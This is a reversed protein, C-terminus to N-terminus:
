PKYISSISDMTVFQVLTMMTSGISPFYDRAINRFEENPEVGKGTALPNMSVMEVGVCALVYLVIVLLICTYFMTSASNMLGRVLMWLERFKVLLRVTRALRMLRLTRLIVMVSTDLGEDSDTMNM